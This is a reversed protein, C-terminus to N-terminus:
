HEHGQDNDHGDAEHDHAETEEGEEPHDGDSEDSVSGHVIEDAPIDIDNLTNSSQNYELNLKKAQLSRIYHIVQWREEYALKDTYKGMLNKGYMISHYFRGNSSAIFDPLLLNAPQVPYKGGVDGTAPDPDRVLYGDGDAKKGHCIGCYLDYLEKGRAMGAETIPYANDIIEVGARTREEETNGYYYPVNGNARFSIATHSSTGDTVHNGVYGRAITGTVPLRPKAYEYYEEETGWTNNYYYNYYNAEYAVSHTMDPMFESGTSNGGAQRCGTAGLLLIITAAIFIQNIHKLKDKM